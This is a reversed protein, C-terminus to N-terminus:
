KGAEQESEWRHNADLNQLDTAWFCGSSLSEPDIRRLERELWERLDIPLNFSGSDGNRKNQEQVFQRYTLLSEGLQPVSNNVFTCRFADEHDLCVVIGHSAEDLCIPNGCGDSGITLYRRFDPGLHYIQSASELTGSKPANFSLFPAASEPLGGESLFLKCSEPLALGKLISMPFLVLDDGETNWITKFESPTIM